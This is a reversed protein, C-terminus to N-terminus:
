GPVKLYFTKWRTPDLRDRIRFANRSRSYRVEANRSPESIENCFEFAKQAGSDQLNTAHELVVNYNSLAWDDKAM